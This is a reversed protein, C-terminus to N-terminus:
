EVIKPVIFFGDKASDAESLIAQPIAENNVPSDARVITAARDMAFRDDVSSTDLEKLNTAFSLFESLEKIIEERKKKKKRLRSLRELRDLLADDIQM